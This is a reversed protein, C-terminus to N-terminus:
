ISVFARTHCITKTREKGIQKIHLDALKPHRWPQGSNAKISKVIANFMISYDNNSEKESQYYTFLEAISEVFGMTTQKAETQNHAVNCILKLLGIVDQDDRVANWTSLTKLVEELDPPYHMLVLVYIRSRNTKWALNDTMWSRYHIMYIEMDFKIKSADKTRM